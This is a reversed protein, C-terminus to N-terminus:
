NLFFEFLSFICYFWSFIYVIFENNWNVIFLGILRFIFWVGFGIIRFRLGLIMVIIVGGWSVVIVGVWFGRGGGLVIICM